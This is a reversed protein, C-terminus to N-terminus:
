WRVGTHKIGSERLVTEAEEKSISSEMNNGVPIFKQIYYTAAGCEKLISSIDVFDNVKLGPIATTRFEYEGDQWLELIARISMMTRFSVINWLGHYNKTTCIREDIKNIPAKVDMAIYDIYPSVRHLTETEFGNTQLAVKYGLKKLRKAVGIINKHYLPEGGSLVVACIHKPINAIAKNISITKILPSGWAIQANHCGACRYNCGMFSIRYAVEGPYDSLTIPSDIKAVRMFRDMM